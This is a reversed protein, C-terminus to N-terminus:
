VVLALSIVKNIAKLMSGKLMLYSARNDISYDVVEQQKPKGISFSKFKSSLSTDKKEVVVPNSAGCESALKELIQLLEPTEKEM